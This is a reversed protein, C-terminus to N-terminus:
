PATGLLTRCLIPHLLMANNLTAFNPFRLQLTICCRSKLAQCTNEFVPLGQLKDYAGLLAGEGVRCRWDVGALRENYEDGLFVKNLEGLRVNFERARLEARQRDEVDRAM